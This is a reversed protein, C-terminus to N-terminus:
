AILCACASVNDNSGLAHLAHEVIERAATHPNMIIISCYENCKEIIELVSLNDFAGDSALFFCSGPTVDYFAIEPVVADNQTHNARNKADGYCNGLALGREAITKRPEVFTGDEPIYLGFVPDGVIMSWVKMEKRDFIALTMVAGSFAGKTENDIIANLKLLANDLKGHEQRILLNLMGQVLLSIKKAVQAGTFPGRPDTEKSFGDIIAFSSYHGFNLAFIEDEQRPRKGQLSVKSSIATAYRIDQM